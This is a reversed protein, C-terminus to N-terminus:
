VSVNGSESSEQERPRWSEFTFQRKYTEDSHFFFERKHMEDSRQIVTGDPCKELVCIVHLTNTEISSLLSQIYRLRRDLWRSCHWVSFALVVLLADMSSFKTFNTVLFVWLLLGLLPLVLTSWMTEIPQLFKKMPSWYKGAMVAGM